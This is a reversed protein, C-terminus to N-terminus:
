TRFRGTGGLKGASHGSGLLAFVVCKHAFHEIAVRIGFSLKGEAREDCRELVDVSGHQGGGRAVAHRRGVGCLVDKAAGVCIQAAVHIEGLACHERASKACSSCSAASPTLPLARLASM